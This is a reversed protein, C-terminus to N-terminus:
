EELYIVDAPTLSLQHGNHSNQIIPLQKLLHNGELALFETTFGIFVGKMPKAEEKLHVQHPVTFYFTDPQLTYPKMDIWHRTSGQRVLVFFYYDKRHPVLFDAPITGLGGNIKHIKFLPNSNGPYTELKYKPIVADIDSYYM